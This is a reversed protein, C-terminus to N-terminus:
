SVFARDCTLNCHKSPICKGSLDLTDAVRSTNRKVCRRIDDKYIGPGLLLHCAHANGNLPPAITKGQPDRLREGLIDADAFAHDDIHGDGLCSQDRSGDWRPANAELIQEPPDRLAVQVARHPGPGRASALGPLCLKERSKVRLARRSPKRKSGGRQCASLGRALNNKSINSAIGRPNIQHGFVVSEQLLTHGDFAAGARLCFGIPHDRGHGQGTCAPWQPRTCFCHFADVLSLSDIWSPILASSSRLADCRNPEQIM